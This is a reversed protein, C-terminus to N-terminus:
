GSPRQTWMHRRLTPRIRALSRPCTTRGGREPGGLLVHPVHRGAISLESFSSLYTGIFYKTSRLLLLDALADQVAAPESRTLSSPQSTIVRGGYRATMQDIVGEFVTEGTGHNVTAGDDSSVFIACDPHIDLAKDIEQMFREAPALTVLSFRWFDGRRVHVGITFPAFHRSKFTEVKSRISEVPRLQNLARFSRDQLAAHLPYLGPFLMWLYSLAYLDHDSLALLDVSQGPQPSGPGDYYQCLYKPPIERVEESCAISIPEDFLRDFPCGCSEIVPWLMRFQRGSEQALERASLMVRLRNCLGGHCNAFLRRPSLM